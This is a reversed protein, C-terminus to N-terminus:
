SEACLDILADRLRSHAFEFGDDLLKKPLVRQGDLLVSSAEGLALKLGFSPAPLWSPRNLARGLASAFERATRPEPAVANVAGVIRERTLARYLVNALDDLHIWPLYRRGDGLPGGLFWKFPTTMKPLAGGEDSLAVGIRPSVRRVGLKEIESAAREWAVCVEALFGEGPASSEDLTEEGRDGYYGTASACIFVSPEADRTEKARRTAEVIAETSRTRSEVITRKYEDSWRKGVIPAGALHVIADGDEILEALADPTRHDWEVVSAAFPLAKRGREANRTLAITEIGEVAMKKGFAGGVLGTAGTLLTRTPKM